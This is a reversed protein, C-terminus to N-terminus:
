PTFCLFFFYMLHFSGRYNLDNDVFISVHSFAIYLCIWNVFAFYFFFFFFLSSFFSYYIFNLAALNMMILDLLRKWTILSGNKLRERKKEQVASLFPFSICFKGFFFFFFSLKANVNCIHILLPLSKRPIM